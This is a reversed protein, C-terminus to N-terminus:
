LNGIGNKGASFKEDIIEIFIKSLTEWAYTGDEKKSYSPARADRGDPVQEM